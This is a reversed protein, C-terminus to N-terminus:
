EQRLAEAPEIQSARHAPLLAAGVGSLALIAVAIAIPLADGAAMTGLRAQLLRTAAVVLPVGVALGLVIPRLAEGVIMRGVDAGRAGLTVRIGIENTRRAVSYSMVGFLGIAALVIALVSIALTIQMVLQEEHISTRVLLPLPDISEIPLAGDAATIARRVAPAVLAPDVATRVLLRLESPQGLRTTDDGHLYPYYIRRARHGEPADLSQGRVDGVVGVIQLITHPGFRVSRGVADGGPFYFSAFSANVLIATANDTEDQSTLDRGALVRAGIAHAYGAGVADTSALSDDPSSRPPSVPVDITASWDTGAFLGNESLTVAAVGPIASVRETITHAASALRTGTYGPKDIDLKAVLLHSRDFGLDNGLAIALGRMLALAGTLLVLSLAVQSAILTFGFRKSTTVSRWSSRTIAALEIRSSRLAPALGFILVSAVAAALTFLLIRPNPDVDLVLPEAGSAIVVLAKSTWWAVIVAVAGSITALMLSEILLQRVIQARSAGVALRTALEHRRAVGRALLLNAVNVCVICLLIAVGAMLVDLPAAFRARVASLGRAASFIPIELPRRELRRLQQPTANGLISSRIVPAVRQRVDALTLGPKARGILLLWMATRDDLVRQHRELQDHAGIPLWLETVAGVIEGDFRPAAVGTITVAADDIVISRGLISSDKHFRSLWYAYSITARPPGYPADDAPGLVRGLAAHVGLLSFYNGSVFRGRPHELDLASSDIRVQLLGARGTALVGTFATNADRVDRYLPYSYMFAGPTGSGFADVNEPLGLAILQDPNPVPLKRILVADVLSYIASNAGIGLALGCIVLAAFSANRRITRLAYSLDQRFQDIM